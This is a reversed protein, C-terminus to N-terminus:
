KPQMGLTDAITKMNKAQNNISDTFAATDGPNHVQGIAGLRAAIKPDRVVKLFDAEIRARLQPSMARSGFMGMLGELALFPAGQEAATKVGPAIEAPKDGSIALVKIRGTPMQSQFITIAAYLVNLRGLSLDNAGQVIDRYPVKVVNLNNSKIFADFQMESAGPAAAANLKGPNARAEDIFDKLSTWKSDGPVAFALMTSSMQAIPIIDRERDYSLKPYRYPHAVFASSPGFFYTHDDNASVFANLSIMADGGPRPEIVVPKGWMAQLREGVIRASTAASSGPGFPVIFRVPRQPWDQAPAPTAALVWAGSTVLAALAALRIRTRM